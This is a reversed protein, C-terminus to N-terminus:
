QMLFSGDRRPRSLNSFFVFDSTPDAIILWPGTPLGEALMIDTPLMTTTTLEDARFNREVAFRYSLERDEDRIPTIPEGDEGLAEGPHMMFTLYPGEFLEGTKVRASVRPNDAGFVPECVGQVSTNPSLFGSRDGVVIWEDHARIEFDVGQAFCDRSPLEAAYRGDEDIVALTFDHASVDTITWTRFDRRTDEDVFVQCAEPLADGSGDASVPASLITLRDGVEVGNNCLNLGASRMEGPTDADVLGDDRRTNPIVGEWTVTWSEAVIARDDTTLLNLDVVDSDGIPGLAAELSTRQTSSLQDGGAPLLTSRKLLDARSFEVARIKADSTQPHVPQPRLISTCSTDAPGTSAQRIASAYSDPTTCTGLSRVRSERGTADQLQMTPNYALRVNNEEALRDGFCATRLADLDDCSQGDPLACSANAPDCSTCIELASCAQEDYQLPFEPVSLCNMEASNELAESGAFFDSSSIIADNVECYTTLAHVNFSAGSDTAVSAGYRYRVIAHECTGKPDCTAANPDQWVLTREVRGAVVMPAPPVAVGLQSAFATRDTGGANYADILQHRTADVVMVQNNARDVVYVFKGFADASVSSFGLPRADPEARGQPSRAIGDANEAGRPSTCAPDDADILGDGNDDVGNSCEFTLGVRAVECPAAGSDLCGAGFDAPVSDGLAVVSAYPQDTYVIYLLEGGPMTAMDAVNGPLALEQGDAQTPVADCIVEDATCESSSGSPCACDVAEHLWLRAPHGLAVALTAADASTSLAIKTPAADFDITKPLAQLNWLDIVSVSADAQNLAFATAGNGAAVDTPTKGVPIGSVGPITADVNILEPVDTAGTKSMNVVSVSDGNQNAILGIAGRAGEACAGVNPRTVGGSFAQGTLCVPGQALAFARPGQLSAPQAATDDGCSVNSAALVLGAVVLTLASFKNLKYLTRLFLDPGQRLVGMEFKIAGTKIFGAVQLIQQPPRRAVFTSAPAKKDIM